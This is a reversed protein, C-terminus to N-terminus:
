QKLYSVLKDKLTDDDISFLFEMLDDWEQELSELADDEKYSHWLYRVVLEDYIIYDEWDFRPGDIENTYYAPGICQITTYDNPTWCIIDSYESCVEMSRLKDKAEEYSDDRIANKCEQIYNYIDEHFEETTDIYKAVGMHIYTLRAVQGNPCLVYEMGMLMVRQYRANRPGFSKYWVDNETNLLEINM